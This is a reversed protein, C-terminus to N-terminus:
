LHLPRGVDPQRYDCVGDPFVQRLETLQETNIDIAYLSMANASDVPMLQCKFLDGSWTGGAQIRSNTYVPYAKSCVGDRKSNWDGDWVTAGIAIFEGQADLCLDKVSDPKAEVVSLHPNQKLNMLWAHMMEFGLNVPYYDKHSIWIVHNDAHGNAAIMRARSYFSASTHHMDLEDELYHRIDIVPLELQGIFVQGSLYAANMAEISGRHRTALGKREDVVTINHKGWLSLWIPLKKGFPAYLREAKMEHQPKWAGVKRNLDIFMDFSIRGSNLALLGYQVGVNDWTSRAIGYEDEGYLGVMDQWYSWNVKAILSPHFYDRLFGQRPNNIYSALGFYGQICESNGDPYSPFVGAIIQNLPQLFGVVQSMGNLSNMGEIYRRDDWDDWRNKDQARFTYYNNLLDCDLAYTTQSVMDPYSYLPLLGDLIGQSNQGILYQALGGGSGGVGVTYLPEGYLSVFQKKVRRATDESLLMNYHYSTKNGSSSIVAYGDLLQDKARKFISKGSLRGQRFGIGSGGHFLYILRKNWASQASRNGIEDFTIPMIISYVYRNITGQEVRFWRANLPNEYDSSNLEEEAVNVWEEDSSVYFYSLRTRLSCDKSYGIIKKKRELSEYVPVGYGDQNDVLPQGMGSEISMCYFPYQAPGSYLTQVPGMEGLQIPFDFVEKPRPVKSIHYDRTKLLYNDRAVAIAKVQRYEYSKPNFPQIFYVALLIGFFIVIFSLLIKKAM